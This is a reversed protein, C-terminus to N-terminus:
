RGRMLASLVARRRRGLRLSEGTTLLVSCAGNKESRVERVFAVNVIASRHIRCFRRPDLQQELAAMSKSLLHRGDRAHLRAYQNAAEIWTVEHAPISRLVSGVRVRFEDLYDPALTELAGQLRAFEGALSAMRQVAEGLRRARIAAKAREVGAFFREKSIPKLLYDIAQVEFARIAYRDYATVFVIYPARTEDLRSVVDFGSVGPMQVDLFVLDPDLRSIADLARTGDPCEAVIEVEADSSLLKRILERSLPEDDVVLARVKM